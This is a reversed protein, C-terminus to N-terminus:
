AGAEEWYNRECRAPFHRGGASRKVGRIFENITM